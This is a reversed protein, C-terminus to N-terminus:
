VGQEFMLSCSWEKDARRSQKILIDAAVEWMLIRSLETLVNVLTRATHDRNSEPLSLSEKRKAVTDLDVGGWWRGSWNSYPARELPNYRGPRSSAV